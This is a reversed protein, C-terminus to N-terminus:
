IDPRDLALYSLRASPARYESAERPGLIIGEWSLPQSSPEEPLNVEVVVDVNRPKRFARSLRGNDIHTSGASDHIAIGSERDRVVSHTVHGVECKPLWEANDFGKRWFCDSGELWGDASLAAHRRSERTAQMEESMDPM